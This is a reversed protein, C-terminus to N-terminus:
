LERLGTFPLAIMTTGALKLVQDNRFDSVYVNGVGDVAVGEVRNLGTFPLPTATTARPPLKFLRIIDTTHVGGASDAAVGLFYFNGGGPFPLATSGTAGAALKLVSGGATAYVSGATDV